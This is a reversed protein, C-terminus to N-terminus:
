LKKFEEGADMQQQYEQLRFNERENMMEGFISVPLSFDKKVFPKVPVKYGFALASRTSKRSGTPMATNPKIFTALQQQIYSSTSPRTIKKHNVIETSKTNFIKIEDVQKEDKKKRSRTIRTTEDKSSQTLVEEPNASSTRRQVRLRAKKNDPEEPVKNEGGINSNNNIIADVKRKKGGLGLSDYRALQDEAEKLLKKHVTELKSVDSTSDKNRLAAISILSKSDTNRLKEVALQQQYREYEVEQAKSRLGSGVDEDWLKFSPVLIDKKDNDITISVTTEEDYNIDNDEVIECTKLIDEDTTLMLITDGTIFPEHSQEQDAAVEEALVSALTGVMNNTKYIGVLRDALEFMNNRLSIIIFQANKTREKIYNAVISVNRFDLAADIEDMVYLPTPKYHHLAFVLALSSLTKEGGSLNSINKWSKKPPMVSFIIGESFPDLSDCCELEANGGLTIMQYMEKLKQSILTFGHMFEELRLKRLEDYQRKCEDRISTVEELDKVRSKYEEECRRYELLVNLNPNADQIKANLSEIENKLNEKDMALLEDDTYTQFEPRPEDGIEHFTLKGLLGLWYNEKQKNEALTRECDELKNRIEVEVARIQNIIETKEDLETKIEYLEEKRDDLIRKAENARDSISRAAEAKQRIDIELQELEQKLQEMENENKAISTEFKSLDKEAKSKAVQSSTIRDNIMVIKEKISDVQYKQSRLKDGGAQLIQEHLMKIEDEIKSSQGKLDELETILKEIEKLIKQIRKGDEVNPKNQQRLENIRKQTDAIRRICANLDMDLKSLNLELEPIENKKHFLQDESNKRQDKFERWQNELRIREKELNSVIEPTVDPVFKSSMGGRNVKTGGGSMTGSKDILQGDLTVVRWRQKGYAIRSAQQLNEAVLTNQLAKYFAPAFKKEKPKILDFLRPVGEPTQIPSLDMSSLQQLLIFQARGLNNKRLYEICNQGVEVSDVVINDLAQCATSVAIDYKDDIVGLNRGSDKLKLLSTLVQGRSQTSQLLARAEEEKQRADALSSRLKDQIKNNDKSSLELQNIEKKILNIKNKTAIIEQEKSRRTEELSVVDEEAQNLALKTSDMKEKLINHESRAVDIASQKSNIKETWPALERQKEEIQASFKETKGKLGERIAELKREEVELSKEAQAIEQSRAILDDENYRISTKAESLAHRDIQIAKLLKKQKTVAHKKKEELHINEKEYGSLEKLIQNTEKELNQYEKISNKYRNELNQTDQKIQTHKGQEEELKDKLQNVARASIEVENKLELIQRQYFASKKMTLMNEERLFDEAERLGAKRKEVIKVRHLKELREENYKEIKDNAEEIPTKYKSTGIIDELYELLGDEHENPAKPKMQAISEVEGQLILFRKHDLDIGRDKLLTRVESYNSQRGSIFYKSANNRSAQRSIVLDSQPVVEFDDSGPLDHIEHFHVEVACYDLTQHSSHILESLKAQRMKSARYGFVFLLADIVNSKGSGNPGVISSFSKHFPGIEFPEFDGIYSQSRNAAIFETIAITKGINRYDLQGLNLFVLWGLRGVRVDDSLMTDIDNIENEDYSYDPISLEEEPLFEDKKNIIDESSV